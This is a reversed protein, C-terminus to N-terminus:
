RGQVGVAGGPLNRVPKLSQRALERGAYESAERRRKAMARKRALEAQANEREMQNLVATVGGPRTWCDMMKRKRIMRCDPKVFEGNEELVEVRKWMGGPAVWWIVWRQMEDSWRLRLADDVEQRLRREWDREARQTRPDEHTEVVEFTSM